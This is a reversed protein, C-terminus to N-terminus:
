VRFFMCYRCFALVKSVQEPPELFQTGLEVSKKLASYQISRIKVRLGAVRQKDPLTFDLVCTMDLALPSVTPIVVCCGGESIDRIVADKTEKLHALYLKAELNVRIRHSNRIKEVRYKEPYDILALGESLVSRIRSQFAYRVDEHLFVCMFDGELPLFIRENIRFVPEEILIFDWHRAGLIRSKAKRTRDAPSYIIMENEILIPLKKM